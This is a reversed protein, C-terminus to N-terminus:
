AKRREPLDSNNPNENYQDLGNLGDSLLDLVKETETSGYAYELAGPAELNAVARSVTQIAADARTAIDIACNLEDIIEAHEDKREAAIETLTERHEALADEHVHREVFHELCWAAIIESNVTGCQAVSRIARATAQVKAEHRAAEARAIAANRADEREQEATAEAMTMPPVGHRQQEFAAVAMIHQEIFRLVYLPADDSFVQAERHGTSKYIHVVPRHYPQGDMVLRERLPGTSFMFCVRWETAGRKLISQFYRDWGLSKRSYETLVHQEFGEPLAVRELTATSM